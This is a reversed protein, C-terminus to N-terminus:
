QATGKQDEYDKFRRPFAIDQFDQLLHAGSRKDGSRYAALSQDLISTLRAIDDSSRLKRELFDLGRRLEVFARDLNMQESDSLFDERPFDAPACLVVYGLFDKLEQASTVWQM